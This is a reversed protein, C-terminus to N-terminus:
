CPLTNSLSYHYHEHPDLFLGALYVTGHPGHMFQAWRVNLIKRLAEVAEHPLRLPDRGSSNHRFLEEYSAMVALYFIYVNSVTAMSSELCKCARALPELVRTLQSCEVEFQVM